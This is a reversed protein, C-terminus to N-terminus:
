LLTPFVPHPTFSLHVFVKPLLLPSLPQKAHESLSGVTVKMMMMGMYAASPM